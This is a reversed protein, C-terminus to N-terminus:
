CFSIEVNPSAIESNQLEEVAKAILPLAGGDMELFARNAPIITMTELVLAMELLFKLLEMENGDGQFGEMKVMRLFQFPNFTLRLSEWYESPMLACKPFIYGDLFNEFGTQIALTELNPSSRLLCLLGPLEHRVLGIM